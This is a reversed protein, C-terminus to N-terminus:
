NQSAGIYFVIGSACGQWSGSREITYDACFSHIAKAICPWDDSKCAWHKSALMSMTVVSFHREIEKQVALGISDKTERAIKAKLSRTVIRPEELMTAIMVDSYLQCQKARQGRLSECNRKASEILCQVELQKVSSICNYNRLIRLFQYTNDFANKKASLIARLSELIYQIRDEKAFPKGTNGVKERDEVIEKAMLSSQPDSTVVFLVLLPLFLLMKKM